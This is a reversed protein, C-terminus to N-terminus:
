KSEKRREKERLAKTREWQKAARIEIIGKINNLILWIEHLKDIETADYTKSVAYYFNDSNDEQWVVVFKWISGYIYCGYIPESDESDKMNNSLAVLMEILVQGQPESDGMKFRKYEHIFFYPVEPDDIGSAVMGDVVGELEYDKFNGKLDRELYFNYGKGEFQLTSLLPGIFRVALEQENWKPHKSRLVVSLTNLFEIYKEPVTGKIISLSKILPADDIYEIGLDNQIRAETWNRFIKLSKSQM